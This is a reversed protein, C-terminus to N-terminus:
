VGNIFSKKWNLPFIFKKIKKKDRSSIFIDENDRSADIRVQLTSVPSAILISDSLNRFGFLM